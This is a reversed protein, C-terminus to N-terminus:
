LFTLSEKFYKFQMLSQVFKNSRLFTMLLDFEDPELCFFVVSGSGDECLTVDYETGIVQDFWNLIKRLESRSDFDHEVTM